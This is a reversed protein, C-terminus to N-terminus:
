VVPDTRLVPQAAAATPVPAPRTKEWLKETAVRTEKALEQCSVTIFMDIKRFLVHVGRFNRQFFRRNGGSSAVRLLDLARQDISGGAHRPQHKICRRH